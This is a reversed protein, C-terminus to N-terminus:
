YGETLAGTRRPDSAGALMGGIKMISQTSGMANKEEIKHGRAELLRVTDPSLGEEVRIEDPLWQNHIRPAATAEAINMGHDIVNLVIQLTTTIIRSGGPSGTVLFLSGDRFVMTPSMSSLPRKNGEVANAEGGILGYANPVGPKASFDDLENNLLVGTGDATLGAGYSFNLTYTNSVANGDKDVVSFHTTENSEYPFPDGPRVDDSPTAADMRITEALARAYAASTLGQVPIDIFDPDGLFKSRDAYARRMAEAMVHISDASNLGFERIPFSELMNLIQVIHVGGSSPPPMSAVEFGRYTGTIPARWVPEYSALDDVTMGGGAAQVKAAIKEATVGKYFGDAGQEAILRLTAALDPQRLIEGPLYPILGHKYFIAATAPDRTLRGAAATLAGSLGPTVTIGNEALDIAPAILDAWTLTGGGHKEYAEAFGAVTGPVGVALGSFRSKDKDPEGDPGLFMDREAAAPAKERYDLARTEGTENLHILMFGGGGLNGARPLTVALAFGTAIAADVANGGKKLIEVGVRTAVAEQSAVMGNQAVVPSFRDKLSYIPADEAALPPAVGAFLLLAASLATLASKLRLEM